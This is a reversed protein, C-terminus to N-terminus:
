LLAQELLEEREGVTEKSLAIRELRAQLDRGNEFGQKEHRDAIQALELEIELLMHLEDREVESDRTRVSDDLVAALQEDSESLNIGNFMCSVAAREGAAQYDPRPSQRQLRRPCISKKNRRVAENDIFLDINALRRVLGQKLITTRREVCAPCWRPHILATFKQEDVQINHDKNILLAADTDM